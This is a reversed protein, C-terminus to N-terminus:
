NLSDYLVKQDGIENRFNLLINYYSGAISM